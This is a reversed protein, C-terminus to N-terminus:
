KTLPRASLLMFKKKTWKLLLKLSWIEKEWEISDGVNKAGKNFPNKKKPTEKKKAM